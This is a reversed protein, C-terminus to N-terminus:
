FWFHPTRRTLIMLSKEVSGYFCGLFITKISLLFLVFSSAPSKSLLSFLLFPAVLLGSLSVTFASCTRAAQMLSQVCPFTQFYDIAWAVLPKTGPLFRSPPPLTAAREPVFRLFRVFSFCMFLSLLLLSLCLVSYFLHSFM